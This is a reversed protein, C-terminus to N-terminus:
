RGPSLGTWRTRWGSWSARRPTPASRSGAPPPHVQAPARVRVGGPGPRLRRGAAVDRARGAGHHPNRGPRPRHPGRAHQAARPMHDLLWSPQAVHEAHFPRMARQWDELVEAQHARLFEATQLTRAGSAEQRGSHTVGDGADGVERPGPGGVGGNVEMRPVIAGAHRTGGDSSPPGTSAVGPPVARACQGSPRGVEPAQWEHGHATSSHARVPETLNAALHAGEQQGAGIHGAVQLSRVRSSSMRSAKRVSARARVTAGCRARAGRCASPVASTSNGPLRGPM